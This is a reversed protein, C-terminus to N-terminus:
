IRDCDGRTPANTGARGRPLIPHLSIYPRLGRQDPCENRGLHCPECYQTMQQTAIGEPRPMREPWSIVLFASFGLQHRLGRQDPCENRCAGTSRSCPPAQQRLGRQDPCENRCSPVIYRVANLMRRLGRQDPCENRRVPLSTRRPPRVTAIGEPRPMREPLVLYFGRVRCAM